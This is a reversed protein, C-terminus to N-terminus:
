KLEGEGDTDRDEGDDPDVRNDDQSQSKGPIMGELKDGHVKNGPGIIAEGRTGAKGGEDDRNSVQQNDNSAEDRRQRASQKRDDNDNEPM